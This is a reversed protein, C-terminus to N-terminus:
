PQERRGKLLWLALGATVFTAASLPSMAPFQDRPWKSGVTVLVWGALELAGCSIVVLSCLQAWFQLTAPRPSHNAAEVKRGSSDLAYLSPAESSRSSSAGLERSEVVDPASFVSFPMHM